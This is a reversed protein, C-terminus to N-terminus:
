EECTLQALYRAMLELEQRSFLAGFTTPMIGAQYGPAIDANPEVIEQIVDELTEEGEQVEEGVGCLNPGATGMAGKIGEIIHCAGCGGKDFLPQVQAASVPSVSGEEAKSQCAPLAFALALFLLGIGVKWAFGRM